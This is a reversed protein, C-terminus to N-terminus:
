GSRAAGMGVLRLIDEALWAPLERRDTSPQERRYDAPFVTTSLVWVWGLHQNYNSGTLVYDYELWYGPTWEPYVPSGILAWEHKHTDVKGPELGTRQAIADLHTTLLHRQRDAM